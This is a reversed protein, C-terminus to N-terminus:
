LWIVDNVLAVHACRWSIAVNWAHLCHHHPKEWEIFLLQCFPLLRIGHRWNLSSIELGPLFFECIVSKWIPQISERDLLPPKLIIKNESNVFGIAGQVGFEIIITLGICHALIKVPGVNWAYFYFRILISHISIAQCIRQRFGLAFHNFYILWVIKHNRLAQNFNNRTQQGLICRRNLEAGELGKVTVM